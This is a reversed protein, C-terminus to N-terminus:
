ILAIVAHESTERKEKQKRVRLQRQKPFFVFMKM